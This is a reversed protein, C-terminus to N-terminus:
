HHGRCSHVHPMISLSLVLRIANQSADFCDARQLVERALSFLVLYMRIDEFWRTVRPLLFDALSLHPPFLISVVDFLLATKADSYENSHAHSLSQFRLINVFHKFLYLKIGFYM